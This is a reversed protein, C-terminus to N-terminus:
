HNPERDAKPGSDLFALPQNLEELFGLRKEHAVSAADLSSLKVRSQGLHLTQLPSEPSPTPTCAMIFLERFCHSNHKFFIREDVGVADAYAGAIRHYPEFSNNSVVGFTLHRLHISPMGEADIAGQIIEPVFLVAGCRRNIAVRLPRM